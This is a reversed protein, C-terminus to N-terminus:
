ITSNAHDGSNVHQLELFLNAKRPTLEEKRLLFGNPGTWILHGGVTWNTDPATRLSFPTKTLQVSEKFPTKKTPGKSNHIAENMSFNSFALLSSPATSAGPSCLIGDPGTKESIISVYVSSLMTIICRPLATNLTSHFYLLLYLSLNVSREPTNATSSPFFKLCLHPIPHPSCICLGQPTFFCTTNSSRHTTWHSPTHPTFPLSM